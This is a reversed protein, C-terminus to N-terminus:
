QDFTHTTSQKTHSFYTNWTVFDHGPHIQRENCYMNLFVVPIGNGVHSHIFKSFSTDYAFRPYAETLSVFLTIIPLHTYFTLCVTKSMATM